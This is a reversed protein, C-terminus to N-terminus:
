LAGQAALDEGSLYCLGAGGTLRARGGCIPGIRAKVARGREPVKGLYRGGAVVRLSAAIIAVDRTGETLRRRVAMRTPARARLLRSGAARDWRALACGAFSGVVRVMPQGILGCSNSGGLSGSLGLM